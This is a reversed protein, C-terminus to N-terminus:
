MMAWELPEITRSMVAEFTSAIIESKLKELVMKVKEPQQKTKDFWNAQGFQLLM